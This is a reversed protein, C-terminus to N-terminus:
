AEGQRIQGAAIAALAWTRWEDATFEYYGDPGMSALAAGVRLAAQQWMFREENLTELSWQMEERESPYQTSM